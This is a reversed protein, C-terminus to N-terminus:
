ATRWYVHVNMGYWPTRPAATLWRRRLASSLGQVHALGRDAFLRHWFEPAVCHIHGPGPQGPRAATFLIRGMPKMHRVLTDVLTEAAGEPLHEAVEWCLVWDFQRNLDIPVCLDARVLSPDEPAALDVGMAYIGRAKAWEVLVGEACGMDVLSEPKGLTDIATELCRVTHPNTWRRQQHYVSGPAYLDPRM